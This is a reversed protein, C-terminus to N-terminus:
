FYCTCTTSWCLMNPPNWLFTTRCSPNCHGLGGPYSEGNSNFYTTAPIGFIYLLGALVLGVWMAAQMAQLVGSIVLVCKRWRKVLKVVRVLRVLRLVRLLSMMQLDIEASALFSLIWVDRDSLLMLSFDLINWHDQFYTVRMFSIKLVAELVFLATFVHECVGWLQDLESMDVEMGLQICSAGIVSVVAGNFVRSDLLWHHHATGHREM